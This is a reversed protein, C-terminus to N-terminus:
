LAVYTGDGGLQRGRTSQQVSEPGRPNAYIIVHSCIGVPIIVIRIDIRNRRTRFM